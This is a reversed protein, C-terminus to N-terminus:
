IYLHCALCLAHSVSISGCITLKYSVGQLAVRSYGTVVGGHGDMVSDMSWILSPNVMKQM